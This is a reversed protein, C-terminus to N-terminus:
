GDSEEQGEGGEMERQHTPGGRWTWGSGVWVLKCFLM